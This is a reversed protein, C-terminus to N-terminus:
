SNSLHSIYKTPGILGGVFIIPALYMIVTVFYRVIHTSAVGTFSQLTSLVVCKKNLCTIVLNQHGLIKILSWPVCKM